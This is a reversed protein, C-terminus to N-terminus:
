LAVQVLINITVNLAVLQAIYANEKLWINAM